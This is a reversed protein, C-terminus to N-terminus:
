RVRERSRAEQLICPGGAKGVATGDDFSIRSQLKPVGTGAAEAPNAVINALLVGEVNGLTQVDLAVSGVLDLTAGLM